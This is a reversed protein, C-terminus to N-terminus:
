LPRELAAAARRLRRLTRNEDPLEPAHTLLYDIFEAGQIAAVHLEQMRKILDEVKEADAPNAKRRRLLAMAPLQHSM